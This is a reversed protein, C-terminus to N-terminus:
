AICTVHFLYTIDNKNVIIESLTLFPRDLKILVKLMRNENHVREKAIEAEVRECEEEMCSERAADM